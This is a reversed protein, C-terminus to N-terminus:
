RPQYRWVQANSVQKLANLEAQVQETQSRQLFPGVYVRQLDHADDALNYSKYGKNRLSDRLRDANEANKFAGVQLAWAVPVGEDDLGAKDVAISPDRPADDQTLRQEPVRISAEFEGSALSELEIRVRKTEGTDVWEPTDPRDPMPSLLRDKNRDVDLVSPLVIAVLLVTTVAGLM